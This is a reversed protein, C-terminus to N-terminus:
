DYVDRWQATAALDSFPSPRYDSAVPWGHGRISDLRRDSSASSRSPSFRAGLTASAHRLHRSAFNGAVGILLARCFGIAFRGYLASSGVGSSALWYSNSLVHIMELMPAIEQYASRVGILCLVWAQIGSGTM